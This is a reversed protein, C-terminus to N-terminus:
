SNVTFTAQDSILHKSADQYTLRATYTGAQNIDANQFVYVCYQNASFTGQDPTVLPSNGVTVTPNTRTFSTGDPRTFALSLSSYGSIDFNVNLNYTIGYEGANM